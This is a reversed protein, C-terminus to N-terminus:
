AAAGILHDLAEGADRGWVDAGVKKWLGDVANFAMGGVLITPHFSAFDGRIQMITSQVGQVQSTMTSPLGIIEPRQQSILELLSDDPTNAGLFLTDYGSSQLFDAMMRAGIEHYNGRLCAVVARQPKRPAVPVAAYISALVGQTIATALHEQAVSIAGREWLRGVEYLAPQFVDLYIARLSLGDHFADIILSHALQRDGALMTQLYTHMLPHANDSTPALIGNM